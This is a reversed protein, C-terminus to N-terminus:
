YLLGKYRLADQIPINNIVKSISVRTGNIEFNKPAWAWSFFGTTYGQEFLEKIDRQIIKGKKVLEIVEQGNTLYNISYGGTTCNRKFFDALEKLTNAQTVKPDYYREGDSTRIIMKITM